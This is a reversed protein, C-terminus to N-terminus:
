ADGDLKNKLANLARRQLAKIAGPRRGLVSAVESVSLGGFIRLLLVDQQASTLAGM